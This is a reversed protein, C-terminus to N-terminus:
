GVREMVSLAKERDLEAYVETVVPSSHGLIVRAVDSGFEKRLRTAASHRLQHGHWRQARRWRKLEDRQEPTLEKFKLASLTPHPFACDCAKAIARGYSVTTCHDGPAKKPVKVRRRSKHSPTMPTRRNRRKDAYFAEAVEAPSFLYAALDTRLWPTVIAQAQPGLYITRERGHHETKHRHPTYTWVNGSTDLDCTRMIVAEGPRMGTRRQLEIMAWIQPAVHPRTADVMLDPVPKVPLSERAETRGRRLGSVAKLGHHVSPPVLEESVGWKFARVVHRTRKNVEGRCIGSEVMAQRVMKLAVSGFEAAPTSGYLRKLPRLALKINGVESTPQGDKRYYGEAWMVYAFILENVTLDSPCRDPMRRGNTLWIGLLRNYEERSELSGYRGLYWAKGDLTVVAQNTPKHIRYKPMRMSM